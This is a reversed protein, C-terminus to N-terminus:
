AAGITRCIFDQLDGLALDRVYEGDRVAVDQFSLPVGVRDELTILLHIAEVSSVGLNGGLSTTPGLPGADEGREALLEGLASTIHTWVDNRTMTAM